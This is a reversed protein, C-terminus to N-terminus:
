ELIEAIIVAKDGPLANKWVDDEFYFSQVVIHEFDVMVTLPIYIYRQMKGDLLKIFEENLPEESTFNGEGRYAYVKGGDGKVIFPNGVNIVIKHKPVSAKECELCRVGLMMNVPIGRAQTFVTESSYQSSQIKMEQVPKFCSLVINTYIIGKLSVEIYEMQCTMSTDQPLSRDISATGTIKIKEQKYVLDNSFSINLRLFEDEKPVFGLSVCVPFNIKLSEEQWRGKKYSNCSDSEEESEDNKQNQLGMAEEQKLIEHYELENDQKNRKLWKSFWKM